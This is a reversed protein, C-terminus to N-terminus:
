TLQRGYVETYVLKGDLRESKMLSLRGVFFRLPPLAYSFDSSLRLERALTVHPTFKQDELTFGSEKLKQSLERQLASLAPSPAIGAWYIDGGSRSFKGLRDLSLDFGEYELSDLVARVTGLRPREVEGLFTLTLHLNEPRTFNGRGGAARMADQASSLAAKVEPPLNLAIFTRM